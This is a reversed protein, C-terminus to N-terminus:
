KNKKRYARGMAKLNLKGKDKGSKYKIQTKKNKVYKQWKSLTRTKNMTKRPVSRRRSATKRTNRSRTYGYIRAMVENLEMAARDYRGETYFDDLIDYIQDKDSRSLRKVPM